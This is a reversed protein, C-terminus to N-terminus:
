DNVMVANDIIKKMQYFYVKMLNTSLGSALLTDKSFLDALYNAFSDDAFKIGQFLKLIYWCHAVILVDVWSLCVHVSIIHCSARWFIKFFFFYPFIMKSQDQKVFYHLCVNEVQVPFPWKSLRTPPFKVFKESFNNKQSGQKLRLKIRM